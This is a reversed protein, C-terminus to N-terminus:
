NVKGDFIDRLIGMETVYDQGTCYYVKETNPYYWLRNLIGFERPTYWSNAIRERRKGRSSKAVFKKMAHIAKENGNRVADNYTIFSKEM